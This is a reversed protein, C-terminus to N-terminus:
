CYEDVMKLLKKATTKDITHYYTIKKANENYINKYICAAAVYAGEPTPHNNDPIHMKIGANKAAQFARADNIVTGNLYNAVIAANTSMKNVNDDFNNDKMPWSTRIYIKANKNKLLDYIEQAGTQFLGLDDEAVPTREQLVVVDYRNSSIQTSYPTHKAKYDLTSGGKVIVTVEAKKNMSSLIQQFVDSVNSNPYNANGYRTKSNGILAIKRTSNSKKQWDAYLTIKCDKKTANCFDSAKYVKAQSYSTGKGNAKTNWAKATDIYYGDRSLNIHNSNNVDRLGKGSLSANGAVKTCYSNGNCLLTQGSTSIDSGHASNLSGGNMNYTIYVYHTTNEEKVTITVSNKLGSKTKGTITVKGKAVGTVKGNNNVTAIKKDSTSWTITEKNGSPTFTAKLTVSEGKKISNKPTTISLTTTTPTTPTTERTKGGGKIDTGSKQDNSWHAYLDIATFTGPEEMAEFIEDIKYTQSESLFYIKDNYFSKFYWERGKVLSTGSKTIKFTTGNISNIHKITSNGTYQANSTGKYTLYGYYSQEFGDKEVSGGNPYFYIDLEKASVSLGCTFICLLLFIKKIM